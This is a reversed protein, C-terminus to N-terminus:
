SAPAGGSNGRASKHRRAAAVWRPPLLYALAARFNSRRPDLRLCDVLSGLGARIGDERLHMAMALHQAALYRSVIRHRRGPDSGHLPRFERELGEAMLVANHLNRAAIERATMNPPWGFNSDHIRWRTVLGVTLAVRCTAVAKVAWSSEAFLAGEDFGGVKKWASRRAAPRQFDIPVRGILEEFLGDGFFFLGDREIPHTRELLRQITQLRNRRPGEAYPGFPEVGMFICDVEPHRAFGEGLVRLADPKLLDDDDLILIVDGSAARVGANKTASIGRPSGQRLFTLREGILGQLPEAALPPQSGDDIVVVEFNAHTQRAVSLVAERLFAPRNHAPIVISILM